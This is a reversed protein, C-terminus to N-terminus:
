QTVQHGVCPSVYSQLVGSFFLNFDYLIDFAKEGIARTADSLGSALFERDLVVLQHTFAPEM